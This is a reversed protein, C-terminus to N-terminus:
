PSGTVTPLVCWGYKQRPSSQSRNKGGVSSDVQAVLTTAVQVFPIGRLYVSAVFGTIDGIVGGGLAVLVSQREFRQGMLQDLIHSVWRLTKAGEGDPISILSSKFGARRLSREVIPGYLRELIPNTVIGVKGM